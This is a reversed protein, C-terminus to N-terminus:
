EESERWGDEKPPPKKRERRADQAFAAVYDIPEDNPPAASIADITRLRPALPALLEDTECAVAFLEITHRGIRGRRLLDEVSNRLALETYEFKEMMERAITVGAGAPLLDDDILVLGAQLYNFV